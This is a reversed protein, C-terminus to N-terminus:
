LYQGTKRFILTKPETERLTPKLPYFHWRSLLSSQLYGKSVICMTTQGEERYSRRDRFAFGYNTSELINNRRVCVTEGDSYLHSLSLNSDTPSDGLSMPATLSYLPCDNDVSCGTTALLSCAIMLFDPLPPFPPHAWGFDMGSNFLPGVSSSRLCVSM